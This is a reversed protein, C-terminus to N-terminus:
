ASKKILGKIDDFDVNLRSEDLYSMLFIKKFKEFVIENPEIWNEITNKVEEFNFKDLGNKKEIQCILRSIREKKPDGLCLHNFYKLISRIFIEECNFISFKDHIPCIAQGLDHTNLFIKYFEPVKEDIYITKLSKQPGILFYFPSAINFPVDMISHFGYCTSLFIFLNNQCEINILRLLFTLDQWALVEEGNETKILFGDKTGHIDFHILPFFYGSFHISMKLIEDIRELLESRSSIASFFIGLTNEKSFYNLCKDRLRQGTKIESEGLCEIIFIHSLKSKFNFYLRKAKRNSNDTQLPM